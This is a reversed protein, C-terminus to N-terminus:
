NNKLWMSTRTVRGKNHVNKCHIICFTILIGGGIIAGICIVVIAGIPMAM